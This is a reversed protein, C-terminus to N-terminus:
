QRPDIPLDPYLSLRLSHIGNRLVAESPTVAEVSWGNYTGGLAVWAGEPLLTSSIFIAKKSATITIASLTFDTQPPPEAALAPEPTAPTPVAAPATWPLRSKFFVPRALTQTAAEIPKLQDAPSPDAIPPPKWGAGAALDVEGGSNAISWLSWGLAANALVLIAATALIAPPTQM